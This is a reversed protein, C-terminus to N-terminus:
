WMTVADCSDYYDSALKKFAKAKDDSLRGFCMAVSNVLEAITYNKIKSMDISIIQNNRGDEIIGIYQGNKKLQEDKKYIHGIRCSCNRSRDDSKLKSIPDVDMVYVFVGSKLLLLQGDTIVNLDNRM